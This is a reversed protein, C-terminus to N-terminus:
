KSRCLPHLSSSAHDGARQPFVDGSPCGIHFHPRPPRGLSLYTGHGPTQMDGWRPKLQDIGSELLIKDDWRPNFSRVARHCPSSSGGDVAANYYQELSVALVM